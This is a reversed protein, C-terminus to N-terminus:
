EGCRPRGILQSFAVNPSFLSSSCLLVFFLSLLVFSFLFLLLLLPFLFLFLMSFAEFEDNTDLLASGNMPIDPPQMTGIPTSTDTLRQQTRVAAGAIGGLPASVLRVLSLNTSTQAMQHARLWSKFSQSQWKARAKTVSELEVARLGPAELINFFVDHQEALARVFQDLPLKRCLLTNSISNCYSSISSFGIGLIM